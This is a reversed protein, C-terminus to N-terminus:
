VPRVEVAEDVGDVHLMYRGREQMIKAHPMYAYHYHYKYVAQRWKRGGHFEFVTDRDKFGRFRGKLQGDAVIM